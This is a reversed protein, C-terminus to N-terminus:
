RKYVLKAAESEKLLTRNVVDYWLNSRSEGPLYLSCGNSGQSGIDQSGHTYSYHLNFWVYPTFEIGDETNRHQPLEGGGFSNIWVQYFGYQMVGLDKGMVPKSDFSFRKKAPTYSVKIPNYAIGNDKLIRNIEKELNKEIDSVLDKEDKIKKDSVFEDNGEFIPNISEEKASENLFEQFSHLKM